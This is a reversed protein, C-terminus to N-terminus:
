DHALPREMSKRSSVSIIAAESVAPHAMIENEVQRILFTSVWCFCLPPAPSTRVQVSPIWEGGTKILDKTRDLLRLYGDTQLPSAPSICPLHLPPAPSTCALHRPCLGVQLVGVDGTKLWAKIIIVSSKIIIVQLVGVDGTKLWGDATFDAAGEPRAYYEGTVWPGRAQIEGSSEGDAPLVAGTEPDSIRLEVGPPPVGAM